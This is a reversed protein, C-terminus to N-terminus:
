GVLYLRVAWTLEKVDMDRHFVAYVNIQEDEDTDLLLLGPCNAFEHIKPNVKILIKYGSKKLNVQCAPIIKLRQNRSAKDQVEETSPNYLQALPIEVYTYDKSYRYPQGEDMKLNMIGTLRNGRVLNNFVVSDM